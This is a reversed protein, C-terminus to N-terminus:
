CREFIKYLNELCAIQVVAGNNSLRRPPLFNRMSRFITHEM